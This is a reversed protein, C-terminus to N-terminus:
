LSRRAAGLTARLEEPHHAYDDVVQIGAVEGPEFRRGIGEFTGLARVAVEFDVGVEDAVAISALANQVNHQGIM